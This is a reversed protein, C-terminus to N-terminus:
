AWSSLLSFNTRSKTAAQVFTMFASRKSRAQGASGAARAARGTHMCPAPQAEESAGSGVVLGARGGAQRAGEGEVSRAPLGRSTSGRPCRWGSRITPAASLRYIIRADVGADTAAGAVIKQFLEQGIGGSCSYTM